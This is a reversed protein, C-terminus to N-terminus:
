QSWPEGAYQSTLKLHTDKLLKGLLIRLLKQNENKTKNQKTKNQKTTKREKV